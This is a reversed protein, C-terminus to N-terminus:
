DDDDMDRYISHFTPKPEETLLKVGEDNLTMTMTGDPNVIAKGLVVGSTGNKFPVDEQVKFAGPMIVDPVRLHEIWADLLDYVSLSWGVKIDGHEDCVLHIGDDQNTYLVESKCM